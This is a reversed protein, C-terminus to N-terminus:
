HTDLGGLEAGDRGEEAKEKGDQLTSGTGAGWADRPSGGEERAKAGEKAAFAALLAGEGAPGSPWNEEVGRRAFGAGGLAGMVCCAKLLEKGSDDGRTDETLLPCGGGGVLPTWSVCVLGGKFVVDSVGATRSSAKRM